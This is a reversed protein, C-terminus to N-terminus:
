PRIRHSMRSDAGEAHGAAASTPVAGAGAHRGKLLSSEIRAWPMARPGGRRWRAESTARQM